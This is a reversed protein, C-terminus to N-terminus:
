EENKKSSRKKKAKKKPKPAEEAVPAEDEPEPEPEPEPTTEPESAVPAPEPEPAKEAVKKEAKPAPAPADGGLNLASASLQGARNLAEIQDATLKNVEVKEVTVRDREWEKYMGCHMFTQGWMLTDANPAFRTIIGALGIEENSVNRVRLLDRQQIVFMTKGSGTQM